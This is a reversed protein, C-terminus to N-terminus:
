QQLNNIWNNLLPKYASYHSAHIFSQPSIKSAENLAHQLKFGNQAATYFLGREQMLRGLYGQETQGPTPILIAKKQLAALDMITSYGSRCIVMAANQILPALAEGTLRKHYTIHLPIFVPAAASESGAVFIVKGTYAQVQQWLLASLISRQPEPGSLLILISGDTNKDPMVNEFQTLLGLYAANAPMAKPHSLEDALNDAGKADVVWTQGFRDLHKYHMKRVVKDTIGGIGTKIQLQHTLVVSPVRNHYLGYRNDSIVGDIQMEEVQQRLWEHEAQIARYLRPLQFLLGAQLFRNWGSYRVNYGELHIFDIAEFTEEIFSRQWVNGAVIPVHGQRLIHRILPVCRATHGLGWDLPAILIRKAKPIAM